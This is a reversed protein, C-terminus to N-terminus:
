ARAASTSTKALQLAQALYPATQSNPAQAVTEPPGAAVLQGGRHGGGPGLDLVYDASKIIDLNHEIIVVSHGREVLQNLVQLLTRVDALHLGTTPEDLLYLTHGRAPRALERALKVRQAEGGSLTPAPQGLPLYGLGVEALVQLARQLRPQAAFLELAEDVTLDLVEAITYGRYRIDLTEPNYRQGQCTECTVWVDPLFHMEVLRSGMGQCSDCRGGSVNFSFRRPTYGRMVAEPLSAYLQRIHDFLGAYTAPNSRPTAGIPSQDVNIVKDIQEAGQLCQHRGPPVGNGQGLSQTLARYLVEHILTSKGSGSPGTVCTLRGLPLRATLQQLNHESAGEITLWQDTAKAPPLPRREPPLPISLRGSLLQGTLSAAKRAVQTATGAAVIRGGLPGSGPGVDVIYDAAALTQPDHEVVVLTNGEDRLRHLAQLMRDNDAPHVGVTPEDLVYLVGTLGTGLQGALKVRQAEGGSLTPSPRHLTLYDLGVEVLLRLRRNIEPVLDGARERERPTLQLQEFWQKAEDLPLQCLQPLTYERLKVGAAAPRLRGGECAPCLTAGAYCNPDSEATGPAPLTEPLVGLGYCQPCWGAYHNFSFGRPTLPEYDAGCAQCSHHRSFRQEAAESIAIATGESLKLATELAQALRSRLRPRLTLRDVIVEVVHRRRRDLPPGDYPLRHLEGDVRIRGWGQRQLRQLAQEFTESASLALPAAVMIQAGGQSEWLAEVMQDVTQAGVRDGCRPCYPTGLRAYLVRLHDYIETTTGVTSRPSNSRGSQDVAIAPPLGTIREVKPKPMQHVFQRAYSSLSEVFRRQGEAYLTDLALSTKGSGSVGSIVTMQQHPIKLAVHRLNHEHAGRLQLQNQRRRPSPRRRRRAPQQLGLAERLMAATPSLADAAVEEPTGTALILGGGAGGEPGLDVIYDAAKAIDPHHEVVVVTNGEDVLRQLVTLLMEVDALHLGTTPEDLVYLCRGGGPRSLERALKIRQAEGGSLTTAPQGLRIYGLGVDALTQLIRQIKPLNAFHDLAESVEMGLIEAINKGKYEIDLTALDFRRGECQECTAWVEAMFDSELRVAGHGECAECRGEAVNFSFRGPKYGRAASEPLRAYLDRIHTLVGTYTAPNSRPTRGIPDQDILLVKDLEALGILRDYPGPTAEAGMLERALAPYLTDTILSSKGSGSVGTVCVLRGLPLSLDVAQLNNLRAQTLQLWSAQGNRRQAPIAISRRGSLYQGTLSAAQRKIQSPTGQAVIHGGQEGAGPGFDVILDAAQITQEDHEVVIVTNGLDRLHLLSELLKGQDRHHLGISPEDLVYLVEALGSGVQSALRIRQSEGGSLSPASRDLTLYHLGVHVLFALRERIEKLADEAILLEPASLELAAFFDTASQVDLATIQAISKGGVTIARSEPRLREGQCQPCPGIRMALEFQRLLSRAKLSRYRQHLEHLLGPWPDRHNWIWHKRPNRYTFDIPEGQSGKLLLKLQDETLERWPTQLTFGGHRAVGEYWHRRFAGRLSKMLPVAGELLSKDPDPVLLQPDFQREVGLGNCAQCMGRPSNFSFSAHTPPDFSLDCDTCAYQSSLLLEDGTERWVLVRGEALKLAEDVAEAVRSRSAPGITVRDLVLDIQHRRYRDLAPPADLRVFEGDVRARLYGRQHLDALYERFEGKRGAILPALIQVKEGTPLSVIRAIVSERSQGGIPKGCQPCHPKGIAAFLVRLHDYIETITAVTSRPNHSRAGQDIAIAPALGEIHGVAPRGLQQLFQRAYTSLSEVYRRQGEAFLTDFALSSKGSGSVGTFVILRGKPLRLDVARLNHQRAQHIIIEDSV